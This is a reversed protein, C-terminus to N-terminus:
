EGAAAFVGSSSSSYNGFTFGTLSKKTGTWFKETDCRVPLSETLKKESFALHMKVVRITASKYPFLPTYCSYSHVPGKAASKWVNRIM